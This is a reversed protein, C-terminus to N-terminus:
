IVSAGCFLSSVNSFFLFHSMDDGTVLHISQERKKKKKEQERKVKRFNSPVLATYRHAPRKQFASFKYYSVSASASQQKKKGRGSKASLVSKWLRSIGRTDVLWKDLPALPSFISNRLRCRTGTPYSDPPKIPLFQAGQPVSSYRTRLLVRSRSESGSLCSQSRPLLLLFSFFFKTRFFPVSNCDFSCSVLTEENSSECAPGCVAAYSIQLMYLSVVSCFRTNLLNGSPFGSILWRIKM